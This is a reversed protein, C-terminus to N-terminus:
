TIAEALLEVQNADSSCPIFLLEGCGAAAFDRVRARIGDADTAAGAAISRATDEGLFNYYDNLYVKVDERASSGLAFYVLASTRPTDRRGASGWARTLADAGKSFAAADGGGMIWGDGRTAARRFAAEATGGFVMVPRGRIPRPGIKGLVTGSRASWIEDFEDLQQDFLLGRSKYDVHSADYDDQRTGAAIGLVLRGGSLVDITALQKALLAANGRYPGILISTALEVRDTVAAAAALTILPELNSFVLRDLVALSSFGSAEATRAWDIVEQGTVGAITSPLGIGSKM